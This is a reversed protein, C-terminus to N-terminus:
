TRSADIMENLKTTNHGVITGTPGLVLPRRLLTPEQLMLELLADDDLADIEAARARYVKSRKSLAEVPALRARALVSTLEDRSFRERFFDRSTFETGAVRLQEDTKRCSTCSTYGYTEIM